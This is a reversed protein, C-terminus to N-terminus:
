AYRLACHTLLVSRRKFSLPSHVIADVHLTTMASVFWFEDLFFQPEKVWGPARVRHTDCAYEVVGAV